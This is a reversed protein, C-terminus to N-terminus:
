RSQSFIHRGPSAMQRKGLYPTYVVNRHHNGGRRPAYM